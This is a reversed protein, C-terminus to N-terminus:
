FIKSSKKLPQINRLAATKKGRTCVTTEPEQDKTRPSLDIRPWQQSTQAKKHTPSLSVKHAATYWVWHDVRGEWNQTVTFLVWMNEYGQNPFDLVPFQFDGRKERLGMMAEIHLCSHVASRFSKPLPFLCLHSDQLVWSCALWLEADAYPYCM